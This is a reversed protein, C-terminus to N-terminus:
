WLLVMDRTMELVCKVTEINSFTPRPQVPLAYLGRFCMPRGAAQFLVLFNDDTGPWADLATLVATRQAASAGGALVM